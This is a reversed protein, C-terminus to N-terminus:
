GAKGYNAVIVPLAITPPESVIFDVYGAVQNDMRTMAEATAKMQEESVPAPNGWTIVDSAAMGPLEVTQKYADGSAVWAAPQLTVAYVRPLPAKNAEVDDLRGAAETAAAGLSTLEGTVRTDLAAVVTKDEKSQIALNLANFSSGLGSVMGELVTLDSITKALSKSLASLEADIRIKLADVVTKDEKGSVVQTLSGLSTGLSKAYADLAAIANKNAEVLGALSTANEKVGKILADVYVLAEAVNKVTVAGPFTAGVQAAGTSAVLEDIIENIRQMAEKVRLAYGFTEKLQQASIGAESPRDPLHTLAPAQIESNGFKKDLLSM